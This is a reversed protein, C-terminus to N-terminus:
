KVGGATALVNVTLDIPPLDSKKDEIKRFCEEAVASVYGDLREDYFPMKDTEIAQIPPGMNTLRFGTVISLTGIPFEPCDARSNLPLGNDDRMLYGEFEVLDGHEFKM